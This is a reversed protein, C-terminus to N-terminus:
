DPPQGDAEHPPPPITRHTRLALALVASLLVLGGAVAPANLREGLFLVGIVAATLPEVLAILTATTATVSTLGIFFLAYAIASPFLGLYGLLAGVALPDGDTPWLGERVALPLLCCAGVAFGILANGVPSGGYQATGMARNLLTTGAFGLAALLALGIGAAPASGSATDGGGGLLLLALGALAIAVIATGGRNLRETMWLRAGLAVLVPGAGLTVVTAVAVGALGVAAFYATQSVALGVGTVLLRVPAATFQRRLRASGRPRLLPWVLALLVAGGTFRWFSVALSGLGSDRYLVAAVAGGTGWATAAFAVYAVGRGGPRAGVSVMIM